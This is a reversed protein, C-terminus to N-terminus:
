PSGELNRVEIITSVMRRRYGDAATAGLHDEASPRASWEGRPDEKATRAVVTVRLARWPTTTLAPPDVDAPDNGFWEDADNESDTVTGDADVDVGVAVQFDEVGEALPEGAEPGDSDPDMFITPVGDVDEVYFRSVKARLVLAGVPYSFDVGCGTPELGLRFSDGQDEIGSLKLVVGTTFDTILILDGESLGSADLVTVVGSTQDIVERTSTVTSGAATIVSLEDPGSSSNIVEIASIGTCGAADTMVGSPVGASANRVADAVIDITGRAARQVAVAERHQRYGTVVIIGIEFAVGILLTCLVMAVLLEVITFGRQGRRKDRPLPRM